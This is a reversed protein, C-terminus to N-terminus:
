RRGAGDAALEQGVITRPGPAGARQAAAFAAVALAAHVVTVIGALTAVAPRSRDIQRVLEAADFVAFAAAFAAVLLLLPRSARMGVAIALLLSLVLATAVLGNSELNLGLVRESTEAGTEVHPAAAPAGGATAPHEAAEGEPTGEAAVTAATTKTTTATTAAPATAVTAERHGGRREAVIGLLFVVAGIVLLASVLRSTRTRGTM